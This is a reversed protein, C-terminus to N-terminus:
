SAARAATVLVRGEQADLETLRRLWLEEYAAELNRVFRPTDFLPTTLRNAALKAKLAAMEQPHTALRVATEEYATLDPM